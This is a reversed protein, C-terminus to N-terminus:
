KPEEENTLPFELERTAIISLLRNRVVLAFISVNWGHQRNKNKSGPVDALGLERLEHILKSDPDYRYKWGTATKHAALLERALERHTMLLAEAYRSPDPLDKALWLFSDENVFEPLSM